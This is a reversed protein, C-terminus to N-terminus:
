PERDLVEIRGDAFAALHKGDKFTYLSRIAITRVPDSIRSREKGALLLEYSPKTKDSALPAVLSTQDLTKEASLLEDFSEPFRGAHSGAYTHIQKSLERLQAICAKRDTAEDAWLTATFGFLVVTFYKLMNM